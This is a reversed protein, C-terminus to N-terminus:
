EGEQNFRDVFEQWDQILKDCDTLDTPKGAGYGANSTFLFALTSGFDQLLLEAVALAEDGVREIAKQNNKSEHCQTAYGASLGIERVSNELAAQREADSDKTQAAVRVPSIIGLCLLLTTIKAFISVSTM